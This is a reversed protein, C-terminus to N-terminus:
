LLRQGVCGSATSPVVTSWHGSPVYVSFMPAEDVLSHLVHRSIAAGSSCWAPECNADKHPMIRLPGSTAQKGAHNQMMSQGPESSNASGWLGYRAADM